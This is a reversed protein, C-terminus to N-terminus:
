FLKTDPHLLAVIKGKRLHLGQTLSRLNEPNLDVMSGIQNGSGWSEIESLAEQLQPHSQPEPQSEEKWKLIKIEVPIHPPIEKVVKAFKQLCVKSFCDQAVMLVFSDGVKWETSLDPLGLAEWDIQEEKAPFLFSEVETYEPLIWVPRDQEGAYAHRGLPLSLGVVTMAIAAWIINGQTSITKKM